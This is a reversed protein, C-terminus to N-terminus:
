QRREKNSYMLHDARRILNKISYDFQPCYVAIGFSVSIREWPKKVAANIKSQQEQFQQLLLDLNDFDENQLVVIFEDEGVHFVPSHKFVKCVLRGSAIVSLGGKDSGYQDSIQKLNDCNFVGIAIEPKESQEVTEKLMEIYSDFSNKNRLGTLADKNSNEQPLAGGEDMYWVVALPDGADTVIQQGRAHITRCGGNVMIRYVANYTQDKKEFDSAAATVIKVDDPHVNWFRDSNTKEVADQMDQYGFLRCFGDSAAVSVIRGDIIQYIGIPVVSKEIMSQTHEDFRYGTM